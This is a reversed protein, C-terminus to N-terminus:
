ARWLSCRWTHRRSCNAARWLSPDWSRHQQQAWTQAMQSWPHEDEDEHRGKDRPDMGALRTEADAMLEELEQRGELEEQRKHPPLQDVRRISRTHNWPSM